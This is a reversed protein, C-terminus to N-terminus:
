QQANSLLAERLLQKQYDNLYVPYEVDFNIILDGRDNSKGAVPM